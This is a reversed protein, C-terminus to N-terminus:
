PPGVTSLRKPLLVRLSQLPRLRRSKRVTPANAPVPNVSGLTLNTAALFTGDGVTSSGSGTYYSLTQGTSNATVTTTSLLSMMEATSESRFAPADCM